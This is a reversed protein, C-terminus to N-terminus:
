ASPEQSSDPISPMAGRNGGRRLVPVGSLLGYVAQLALTFHDEGNGDRRLGSRVYLGSTLIMIIQAAAASDVDAAIEGRERASDILEVLQAVVETEFPRNIADIEPNRTSEAWIELCLVAKSQADGIFYERGLQEFQEWFPRSRDIRAFRRRSEDRDREVLGEVIAHKSPFYRYINGPSMGAERAVLQMTTRHFGYRTFCREAAHLIAERRDSRQSDLRPEPSAGATSSASGSDM